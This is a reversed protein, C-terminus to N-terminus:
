VRSVEECMGCKPCTEITMNAGTDGKVIQGTDSCELCSFAASVAQDSQQPNGPPNLYDGDGVWKALNPIFCRPDRRLRATWERRFIAHSRRMNEASLHPDAAKLLVKQIEQQAKVLPGARFIAHSAALEDALSSALATVVALANADDRATSENATGSSSMAEAVADSKTLPSSGSGSCPVDTAGSVETHVQADHPGPYRSKEARPKGLRLYELYRRGGVLYVTTLGRGVTAALWMEIQDVTVSDVRLPFCRARLLRADAETRGYDDVVSMLRRYFVEEEANLQDVRDSSLIGERLIRSPM